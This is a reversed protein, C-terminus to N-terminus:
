IFLYVLFVFLCLLNLGAVMKYTPIIGAYQMRRFYEKITFLTLLVLYLGILFSIAGIFATITFLPICLLVTCLALMNVQGLYELSTNFPLFCALLCNALVFLLHASELQWFNLHYYSLTSLIHTHIPWLMISNFLLFAILFIVRYTLNFEPSCDFQGSGCKKAVIVKRNYSVLKYLKKLFWSVLSWSCITTIFPIKQSLVEVLADIGYFVKKTDNDILPIQNKAENLDIQKFLSDPARTFAVRGSPPLLHFKVFLSSYWTCLPCNDDFLLTLNRKM